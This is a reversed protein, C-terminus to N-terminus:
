PGTSTLLAGGDIAVDGRKDHPVSLNAGADAVPLNNANSINVTTHAKTKGGYGDGVTLEFVAIDFARRLSTRSSNAAWM